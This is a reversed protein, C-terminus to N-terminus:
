EEVPAGEQSVDVAETSVASTWPWRHSCANQDAARTTAAASSPSSFGITTVTVSFCFALMLSVAVWHGSRTPTTAGTAALAVVALLTFIVVLRLALRSGAVRQRYDRLLRVLNVSILTVLVIIALLLFRVFAFM